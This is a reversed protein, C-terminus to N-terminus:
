GCSARRHLECFLMQHALSFGSRMDELACCQICPLCDISLFLDTSQMRREGQVGLVQVDVNTVLDLKGQKFEEAIEQLRTIASRGDVIVIHFALSLYMSICYLSCSLLTRKYLIITIHTSLKLLYCIYAHTSVWASLM